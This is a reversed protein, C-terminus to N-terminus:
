GPDRPLRRIGARAGRRPRVPTLPILLVVETPRATRRIQEYEWRLGPSRGALVIVGQSYDILWRVMDRWAQGDFYVRAAGIEAFREDPRGIAVLPGREKIAGDVRKEISDGSFLLWDQLDRLARTWRRASSLGRGDSAFSRLYLIPRRPDSEIVAWASQPVFRVFATAAATFVFVLCGVAVEMSQSRPRGAQHGEPVQHVRGVAVVYFGLCVITACLFGISTWSAMWLGFHRAPLRVQSPDIGPRGRSPRGDTSWPVRALAFFALTGVLAGATTCAMTRRAFAYDFRSDGRARGKSAMSRAALADEAAVLSVAVVACCAGAALSTALALRRVMATAVLGVVAALVGLYVENRLVEKAARLVMRNSMEEYFREGPDRKMLAVITAMSEIEQQLVYLYPGAGAGTGLLFVLTTLVLLGVSFRSRGLRARVGAVVPRATVVRSRFRNLLSWIM